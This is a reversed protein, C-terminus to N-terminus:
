RIADVPQGIQTGSFASYGIRVGPFSAFGATRDPTRIWSQVPDAITARLEIAGRELTIIAESTDAGRRAISVRSLPTVWVAVRGDVSVVAEGDVGTRVEFQGTAEDGAVLPRWAGGAPRLEVDKASSSVARIAADVPQNAISYVTATSQAAAGTTNPTVAPSQASEPPAVPVEGASATASGPVPTLGAELAEPETAPKQPAPESGHAPRGGRSGTNPDIPTPAEKLMQGTTADRTGDGAPAAVPAPPESVPAAKPELMPPAFQERPPDGPLVQGPRRERAQRELDVLPKKYPRGRRVPQAAAGGPRTAQTSATSASSAQAHVPVAGALVAGGAVIMAIVRATMRVKDGGNSQKCV